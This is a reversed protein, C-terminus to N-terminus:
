TVNPDYPANTYYNSDYIGYWFSYSVYPCSKMQIIITSEEGDLIISVNDQKTNTHIEWLDNLTSQSFGSPQVCEFDSANYKLPNLFDDSVLLHKTSGNTAILINTNLNGTPSFLVYLEDTYGVPVFKSISIKWLGQRYLTKYSYTSNEVLYSRNNINWNNNNISLSVKTLLEKNYTPLQGEFASIDDQWNSDPINTLTEITRENEPILISHNCGSLCCLIIIFILFFMTKKM